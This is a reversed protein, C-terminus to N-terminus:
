VFLLCVAIVPETHFNTRLPTTLDLRLSFSLKSGCFLGM